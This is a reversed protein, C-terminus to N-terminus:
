QKFPNGKCKPGLPVDCTEWLEPSIVEYLRGEEVSIEGDIFLPDLITDGYYITKFCCGLKLSLEILSSRCSEPCTRFNVNHKYCTDWVNNLFPRANEIHEGVMFHCRSGLTGSTKFCSLTLLRSHFEDRCTEKMFKAVEAGCDQQCIRNYAEAEGVGESVHAIAVSAACSEPLNSVFNFFEDVTCIGSALSSEGTFPKGKCYDPIAVGCASWLSPNALTSIIDHGNDTLLGSSIFALLFYQDNYLSQYCCGIERVLGTLSSACGSPCETVFNACSAFDIGSTFLYDPFANRCRDPGSERPLCSLLLMSGKLVAKCDTALYQAIAKGCDVTCFTELAARYQAESGATLPAQVTMMAAGCESPSPLAGIFSAVDQPSCTGIDEDQTHASCVVILLLSYVLHLSLAKAM